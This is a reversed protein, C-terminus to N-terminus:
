GEQGALSRAQRLADAVRSADAERVQSSRPDTLYVVGERYLRDLWPSWACPKGEPPLRRDGGEHERPPVALLPDPFVYVIRGVAPLDLM